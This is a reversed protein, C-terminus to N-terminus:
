INGRLLHGGRFYREVITIQDFTVCGPLITAFGDFIGLISTSPSAWSPAGTSCRRL